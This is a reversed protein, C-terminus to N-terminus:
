VPSEQHCIYPNEGTHIRQRAVLSSRGTSTKGCQYCKYFKKGIHIKQHRILNLNCGFANGCPHCAYRKMEHRLSPRCPLSSHHSTIKEYEKYEVPEKRIRSKQLTILKSNQNFAKRGRKSGYLMEGISSKQNRIVNSNLNMAMELHSGRYMQMELSKEQAKFAELQKPFCKNNGEGDQFFDNWSTMRKSNNEVKSQIFRKGIEGFECIRKPNKDVKTNSDCIERLSFTCAGDSEFRHQGFEEMSITTMTTVMTPMDKVEFRTEVGPCFGRPGEQFPSSLDERSVPIGVSLLTQVNELMVEKYLERQSHDLLRWEEQTFDVAVDKFTVLEQSSPRQTGPAMREPEM